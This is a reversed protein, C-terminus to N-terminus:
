EGYFSKKSFDMPRTKSTSFLLVTWFRINEKNMWSNKVIRIFFREISSSRLVKQIYDWFKLGTHGHIFGYNQNACFFWFAFKVLEDNTRQPVLSWLNQM